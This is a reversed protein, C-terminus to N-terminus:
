FPIDDELGQDWDEGSDLEYDQDYDAEPDYTFGCFMCQMLFMDHQALHSSGCKPCFESM